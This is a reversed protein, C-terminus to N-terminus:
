ARGTWVVPLPRTTPSVPPSHRQTRHLCAARLQARGFGTRMCQLLGACVQSSGSSSSGSSSDHQVCAQNITASLADQSASAASSTLGATLFSCCLTGQEPFREWKKGAASCLPCAFWPRGLHLIVTQDSLQTTEMQTCVSSSLVHLM